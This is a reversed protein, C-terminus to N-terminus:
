EPPLIMYKSGFGAWNFKLYKHPKGDPPGPMPGVTVGYPWTDSKDAGVIQGNSEVNGFVVTGPPNAPTAAWMTKAPCAPKSGQQPYQFMFPGEQPGLEWAMPVKPWWGAADFNQGQQLAFNIDDCKQNYWRIEDANRQAITANASALEAALMAEADGPQVGPNSIIEGM